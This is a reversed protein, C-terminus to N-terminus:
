TKKIYAELGLHDSLGRYGTGFMTGIRVPKVNYLEWMNPNHHLIYNYRRGRELSEESSPWTTYNCVDQVPALPHLIRLMDAYEPNACENALANVNLDGAIIVDVLPPIQKKLQLLQSRRAAREAQGEWANLHTNVLVLDSSALQVGFAGKATWMEGLSAWDKYVLEFANTLPVKSAIFLGNDQIQFFSARPIVFHTFGRSRLEAVLWNAYGAVHWGAIWTNFVEQLLLIDYGDAEMVLAKIREQRDPGAGFLPMWCNQQLIRLADESMNYTDAREGLVEISSNDRILVGLLLVTGLSFVVGIVCYLCCCVQCERRFGVREVRTYPKRVPRPQIFRNQM